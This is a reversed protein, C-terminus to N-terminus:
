QCSTSVSGASISNITNAVVQGLLWAGFYIAIGLIVYGFNKKANQLKTPNGRAAVFLFGSYVLFLVAIPVGLQLFAKLLAQVLGCFSKVSLPNQLVFSSPNNGTPSQTGNGTNPQTGNGVNPPTGNGTNQAGVVVPLALMVVGVFM